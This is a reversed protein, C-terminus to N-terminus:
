AAPPHIVATCTRVSALPIANVIVCKASTSRRSPWEREIIFRKM